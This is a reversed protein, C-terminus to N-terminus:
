INLRHLVGTLSRPLSISTKERKDHKFNTFSLQNEDRYKFHYDGSAM